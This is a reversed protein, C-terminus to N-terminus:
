GRRATWHQSLWQDENALFIEDDDYEKDEYYVDDEEYYEDDPLAEGLEGLYYAIELEGDDYQVNADQNLNVEENPQEAHDEGNCEEEHHDLYHHQEVVPRASGPQQPGSMGRGYRTTGTSRAPPRNFNGRYTNGTPRYVQRNYNNYNNNVTSRPGEGVSPLNRRQQLASNNERRPPRYQSNNDRWPPRNRERERRARFRNQQLINLRQQYEQNRPLGTRGGGRMQAPVRISQQQQQIETFYTIVDNMSLDDEDTAHDLKFQKVWTTPMATEIVIFRLTDTSLTGWKWLQTLAKATGDSRKDMSTMDLMYPLYMNILEVRQWYENVTLAHDFKHKQLYTKQSKYPDKWEACVKTIMFAAINEKFSKWTVAGAANGGVGQTRIVDWNDKATGTLVQEWFTYLVKVDLNQTFTAEDWLKKARMVRRFEFLTSCFCEVDKNVSAAYKAVKVKLSDDTNNPDPHLYLTVSDRESDHDVFRQPRIISIPPRVM